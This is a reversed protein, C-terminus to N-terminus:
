FHLYRYFMTSTYWVHSAVRISLRSVFNHVPVKIGTKM